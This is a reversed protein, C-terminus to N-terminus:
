KWGYREGLYDFYALNDKALEVHRAYLTKDKQTFSALLGHMCARKFCDGKLGELSFVKGNSNLYGDVFSRIYQFCAEKLQLERGYKIFSIEWLEFILQSLDLLPSGYGADFSTLVIPKGNEVLVMSTSFRGHICSEHPDNLMDSPFNGSCNFSERARAYTKAYAVVPVSRRPHTSKEVPLAHLRALMAGLEEFLAPDIEINGSAIFDILLHSSKLNSWRYKGDSVVPAIFPHQIKSWFRCSGEDLMEYNKVLRHPEEEWVYGGSQAFCTKNFAVGPIYRIATLKQSM